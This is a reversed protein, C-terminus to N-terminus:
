ILIYSKKKEIFYLCTQRSLTLHLFSDTIEPTSVFMPSLTPELVMITAIKRGPVIKPGPCRESSESHKMGELLLFREGENM